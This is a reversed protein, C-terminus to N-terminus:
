HSPAAASDNVVTDRPQREDGVKKPLHPECSSSRPTSWSSSPTRSAGSGDLEARTTSGARRSHATPSTSSMTPPSTSASCSRSRTASNSRTPLPSASSASGSTSWGVIGDPLAFDSVPRGVERSGAPPRAQPAPRRARRSWSRTAGTPTRLVRQPPAADRARHPDSASGAPAGPALCVVALLLRM